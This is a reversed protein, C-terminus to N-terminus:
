RYTDGYHGTDDRLQMPRGPPIYPADLYSPPECDWAAPRRVRACILLPHGPDRAELECRTLEEAAMNTQFATRTLLNGYIELEYDGDGLRLRRFINHVQIPTFWHYMHLPEGTGMDLGGHLYYDVCGFNVLLVGGARLLRIAHYIAADVDYVVTMVFPIIFCDYQEGDVHDARSLDAVVTVDPHHASLDLAEAHTVDPSGFRRIHATDGIELCRGSIDREHEALFQDNYYRVVPTGRSAGDHLPQLRRLRISSLQRIIPWRFWRRPVSM